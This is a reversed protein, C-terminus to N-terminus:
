IKTNGSIDVVADCIKIKTKNQKSQLTSLEELPPLHFPSSRLPFHKKYFGEINTSIFTTLQCDLQLVV